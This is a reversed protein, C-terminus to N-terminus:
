FVEGYFSLCTFFILKRESPTKAVYRLELIFKSKFILLRAPFTINQFKLHQQFVLFYIYTKLLVLWCWSVAKLPFKPVFSLSKSMGGMVAQVLFNSHAGQFFKELDLTTRLVDKGYERDSGNAPIKLKVYNTVKTVDTLLDCDVNVLVTHLEIVSALGSCNIYKLNNDVQLKSIATDAGIKQLILCFNLLKKITM